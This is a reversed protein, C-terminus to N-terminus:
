TLDVFLGREVDKVVEGARFVRGSMAIHVGPPLLQLAATAVGLNFAADSARMSAPQMAGTLVVVKDTSVLHHALYSATVTMTDTGHTVLVLDGDAEDVAQALVARHGDTMDLSDVAVVETVDYELETLVPALLASLAPAGVVLEGAVDYVKDITGGTTLVHIRRM